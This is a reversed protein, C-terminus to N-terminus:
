KQGSFVWSVSGSSSFVVASGSLGSTVALSSLSPAGVLGSLIFAGRDVGSTGWSGVL